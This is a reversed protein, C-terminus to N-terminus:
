FTSIKGDMSASNRQAERGVSMMPDIHIPGKENQKDKCKHVNTRKGM